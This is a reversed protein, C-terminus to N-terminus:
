SEPKNNHKSWPAYKVLTIENGKKNYSIHDLYARMLMMGRGTERELYETETPDPVSAPVFGKGEDTVVITAKDDKLKFRVTVKKDPDFKSGHKIANIVAEEVGLKVAFLSRESFGRGALVPIIAKEVKPLETMSSIELVREPAAEKTIEIAVITVDDELPDQPMGTLKEVIENVPLSAFAMLIGEIESIDKCAKATFAKLLGNTFLLLKDGAATDIRREEYHPNEFMGVFLGESDLPTLEGARMLLPCCHAANCYRLEMLGLDLVGVFATLYHRELTADLLQSNVYRLMEVPSSEHAVADRFAMKAMAMLLTAPLGSGAVDAIVFNLTSDESEFLEYFDAGIRSCPRSAAAVKLGPIDPIWRSALREHLERAVQLDRQIINNKDELQKTLVKIADEKVNVTKLAQQARNLELELKLSEEGTRRLASRLKEIEQKLFDIQTLKLPKKKGM